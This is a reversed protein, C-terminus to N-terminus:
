APTNPFVWGAAFPDPPPSLVARGTSGCGGLRVRSRPRRGTGAGDGGLPGRRADPHRGSAGTPTQHAVRGRPRAARAGCPGGSRGRGFRVPRGRRFTIPGLRAPLSTSGSQCFDSDPLVLGELARQPAEVLLDLLAADEGLSATALVVLLRAHLALALFRLALLGGALALRRLRDLERSRDGAPWGPRGARPAMGTVRASRSCAAIVAAMRLWSANRRSVRRM